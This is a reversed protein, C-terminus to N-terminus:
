CTPCRGPPPSLSLSVPPPCVAFPHRTLPAAASIVVEEAGGDSAFAVNLLPRPPSSGPFPNVSPPAPPPAPPAPPPAPPALPAGAAFLAGHQAASLPSAYLRLSALSGSFAGCLCYSTRGVM